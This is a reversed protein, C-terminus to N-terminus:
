DHSATSAPLAPTDTASLVYKVVWILRDTDKRCDSEQVDEPMIELPIGVYPGNPSNPQMEAQWGLTEPIAIRRTANLCANDSDPDLSNYNYPDFRLNTDPPIISAPITTQQKSDLKLVNLEVNTVDQSLWSGCGALVLCLLSSTMVSKSSRKESAPLHNEAM